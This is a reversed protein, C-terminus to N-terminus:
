DGFQHPRLVYWKSGMILSWMAWIQKAYSFLKLNNFHICFNWFFTKQDCFFFCAPLFDAGVAVLNTPVWLSGIIIVHNPSSLTQLKPNLTPSIEKHESGGLRTTTLNGEIPFMKPFVNSVILIWFFQLGGVSGRGVGLSNKKFIAKSPGHQAM